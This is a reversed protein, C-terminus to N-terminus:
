ARVLWRPRAAAADPPGGCPVSRACVVVCAADGGRDWALSCHARARTRQTHTDHIGHSFSLSLSLSLSLPLSLFRQQTHRTHSHDCVGRLPGLLNTQMMEWVEEDSAKVLLGDHNVGAANVVVRPVVGRECRAAAGGGAADCGSPQQQRQALASLASEVSDTDTVDCALGTYARGGDV